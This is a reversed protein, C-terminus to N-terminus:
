NFATTFLVRSIREYNRQCFLFMALYDRLFGPCSIDFRGFYRIHTICILNFANVKYAKCSFFFKSKLSRYKTPLVGTVTQGIWYLVDCAVRVARDLIVVSLVLNISKQYCFKPYVM